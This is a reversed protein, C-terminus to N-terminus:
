YILFFPAGGLFSEEGRLFEEKSPNKAYKPMDAGKFCLKQTAFATFWLYKLM